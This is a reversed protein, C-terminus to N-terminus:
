QYPRKMPSKRPRKMPSKKFQCEPYKKRIQSYSIALAQPVSWKREKREGMNIRIKKQLLFKCDM